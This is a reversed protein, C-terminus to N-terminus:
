NEESRTPCFLMSLLASSIDFERPLSFHLHDLLKPLALLVSEQRLASVCGYLFLLSQLHVIECPRTDFHTSASLSVLVFPVIFRNSSLPAAM